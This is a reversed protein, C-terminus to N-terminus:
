PCSFPGDRILRFPTGLDNTYTKVLGTQVDTVTLTVGVDTLGGAYVAVNNTGGGCFSVMKVVAEVNSAGFFWFYGTDSTLPVAQGTGATGAYDRYAARVQFRGGLLCLTTGNAVCAALPSSESIAAALASGAARAADSLSPAAV